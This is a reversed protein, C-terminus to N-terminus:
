SNSYIAVVFNITNICVYSNLFTGLIVAPLNNCPIVGVRSKATGTQSEEYVENEAEQQVLAEGSNECMDCENTKPIVKDFVNDSDVSFQHEVGEEISPLSTM